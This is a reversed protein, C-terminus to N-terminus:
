NDLTEVDLKAKIAKNQKALLASGAILVVAALITVPLDLKCKWFFYCVVLVAVALGSIVWDIVTKTKQNKQANNQEM